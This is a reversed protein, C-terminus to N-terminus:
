APEFRILVRNVRVVDDATVVHDPPINVGTHSPKTGHALLENFADAVEAPDRVLTGRLERRHGLHTVSAPAGGEFNVPWAAPSFAYGGDGVPHWLVPVRYRRGSHRGRFDLLAVPKIAHGLPTRLALRNIPNLIAVVVSPPRAETVGTTM